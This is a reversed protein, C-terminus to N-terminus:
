YGGYLTDYDGDATPAGERVERGYPFAVCDDATLGSRIEIYSDWLNKGTQVQRKELLDGEGRVYVYSGNGETLVFANSLYLGSSNLTDAQLTMSVYYGDQLNASEDIFVKYPYYSVNGSDYLDDSDAPYEGIETVTGTYTELTDWSTIQVEQGIQITNLDLEGVSGEVYFGGGGSVRLLPQGTQRAEAPDLIGVVVGDFEATVKGDDAEKQMIKYEAEAMKINFTLESIEAEKEKRMSAIETATYGSNWDINDSAPPAPQVVDDPDPPEFFSMKYAYTVTRQGEAPVPEAVPAVPSTADTHDPDSPETTPDPETTEPPDTPDTPEGPDTPEVPDTPDPETQVATRVLLVGYEETVEGTGSDKETHQFVVYVRDTNIGTFLEEMLATDVMASQRLWCYKPNTIGTGAGSYILHDRGQVDLDLGDQGPKTTPQTTPTTPRYYIPKYNKIVTLEKKATQLNIKMQQITLNKRELQLESLTTDYTFLVDGKKVQKGESVLVDTVTQTNTLYVPQVRDTTVLGYSESGGEYYDSLGVMGDGIRYVYVPEKSQGPKLIAAAGIVAALIVAIIPIWILNKRKKM